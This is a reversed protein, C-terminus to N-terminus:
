SNGGETERVRGATATEHGFRGAFGICMCGPNSCNSGDREQLGAEPVESNDDPIEREHRQRLHAVQLASWEDPTLEYKHGRPDYLQHILTGCDGCLVYGGDNSWPWAEALDQWPKLQNMALIAIERM